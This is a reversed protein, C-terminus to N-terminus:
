PHVQRSPPQFHRSIWDPRVEEPVGPVPRPLAEPQGRVRITEFPYGAAPVLRAELGAATGVFLLAAQPARARVAAATALAPFVHGGTGGGAICLRVLGM